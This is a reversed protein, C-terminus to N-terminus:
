MEMLIKSVKFSNIVKGLYHELLRTALSVSQIKVGLQTPMITRHRIPPQITTMSLAERSDGLLFLLLPAEQNHLEWQLLTLAKHVSRNQATGM